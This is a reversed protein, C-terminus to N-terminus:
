DWEEVQMNDKKHMNEIYVLPQFKETYKKQKNLCQQFGRTCVSTFYSFPHTQEVDFMLVYRSMHFTAESIMDDKRDWTYNIFNPKTLVGRCIKLFMVGLKNQVRNYAKTKILDNKTTTVLQRLKKNRRRKVEKIQLNSKEKEIAEEIEAESLKESLGKKFKKLQKKFPMKDVGESFDIDKIDDYFYEEVMTKYETLYKHFEDNDIYHEDKNM